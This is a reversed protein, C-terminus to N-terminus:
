RPDATKWGSIIVFNKIRVDDSYTGNADEEGIVLETPQTMTGLADADDDWAVAQGSLESTCSFGPQTTSWSIGIDYWEDHVLVENGCFMTHNVVGGESGEFFCRIQDEAASLYCILNNDADVWLEFQTGAEVDEDADGDILMMTYWITGESPDFESSDITWKLFNNSVTVLVYDDTITAGTLTGQLAEGASDCGYNTGSSHLSNWAFTTGSVCGAEGSVSTGMGSMLSMPGLASVHFSLCAVFLLALILKKM